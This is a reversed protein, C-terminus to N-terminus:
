RGNYHNCNQKCGVIQFVTRARNRNKGDYACIQLLYFYEATKQSNYNHYQHNAFEFTVDHTLPSHPQFRFILYILCSSGGVHLARTSIGVGQTLNGHRTTEHQQQQQRSPFSFFLIFFCCALLCCLFHDHPSICTNNQPRM